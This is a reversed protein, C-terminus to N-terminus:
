PEYGPGPKQGPDQNQVNFILNSSPFLIGRMVQALNGFPPFASAPTGTPAIAPRTLAANGAPWLIQRQDAEDAGLETGAPFKNVQLIYAVIDATQQATLQGPNSAPMTIRIKSALDSLPQRDFDGIFDAGVLPPGLGGELTAGHCSSCLVSVIAQGRAAQEVTYVGEKVTRSQRARADIPLSAVMASALLAAGLACGGSRIGSSGARRARYRSRRFYSFM